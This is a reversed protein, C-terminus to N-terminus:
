MRQCVLGAVRFDNRRGHRASMGIQTIRPRVKCTTQQLAKMDDFGRAYNHENVKPETLSVSPRHM